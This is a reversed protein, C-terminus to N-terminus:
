ERRLVAAPIELNVVGGTEPVTAKLPTDAASAYERPVSERAGPTDAPKAAPPLPTGDPGTLRSVRVRYEGPAIAKRGTRAESLVFNGDGDSRGFGGEGSTEGAPMFTIAANDLPAGNATITGRVPVRKLADGCGALGVVLLVTAIWPLRRMM